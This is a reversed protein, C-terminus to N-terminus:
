ALHEFLDAVVYGSGGVFIFDEATAAAGAAHYADPVNAYTDATLGAAHAKRALAQVPIARPTDPQTLILHVGQPLMHLVTDADKDDVMGFVIYTRPHRAAEAAIQPALYQWAAPNHGTDCITLPATQIQQWRGRLGTLQCVHRLAPEIVAQPLQLARTATLITNTNRVQCDGTLQGTLQGYHRTRYQLCEGTKESTLVEPKDDAFIIPALQQDARAQFVPRTEPVAEGIVVPVHPKIIGAKEAAIAALTNGLLATHDLAINTVVSLEPTIINTCDLRGGLGVEIVAIDVQQEAFYLFALATTLEFFSPQLPEFFQREQRVFDIVRQHPIKVGDVRIREAFDDLHPSTYLGTRYGALQLMAALTHSVSGKGNTGAVHLTRYQRHPHGFHEDLARTTALGEKYAGAGVKEFAPAAHYLYQLTESYNM